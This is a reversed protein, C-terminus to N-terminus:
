IRVKRSLLELLVPLVFLSTLMCTGIGLTMVEGLSKIGQYKAIMLSAFGIMATLNSLLIARGTSVEFIEANGEEQFRRVVYIGNAVGIGLILPLVMYNAPNFSIKFVAMMGLGWVIGLVLPLLALLSATLSLFHLVVFIVIVGLAYEGAKEYSVRLLRTSELMQRPTGTAVQGLNAADLSALFRTNAAEDWIDEKPFVRLLIKRHVGLLQHRLVPPVDDFTLPTVPGGSGKILELKDALDNFFDAQYATLRKSSLDIPTNATRQLFADTNFVFERVQAAIEYQGAAQAEPFILFFIGRLQGLIRRLAEVDVTPLKGLSPLQSLERQIAPILAVKEEQNQPFMAAISEVSRVTPLKELRAQLDRAQEVNDASLLAPIISMQAKEFLVNEWKVSPTGQSQLMKLNAVFPVKSRLPSLSISDHFCIWTFIFALVIVAWPHGLLIDEFESLGQLPSPRIGNGRGLRTLRKDYILLLAPLVTMMAVLSFVLGGAALLGLEGIGQFGTFRAALFSVSTTIGATIISMGTGGFTETLADLPDRGALREEDYRSIVQIGFDIGLGILMPMCTVTLINLHGIALTAFGMTWGMAVILSLIAFGPRLLTGFAFLFLVAVGVLSLMSAHESDSQSANMEDVELPPEGTAGMEVDPFEKRMQALVDDLRALVDESPLAKGAADHAATFSVIYMAGDAFEGPYFETPVDQMDPQNPGGGGGFMQGWPSHYKFSANGVVEGLQAVIRGLIPLAGAIDPADGSDRVTSPSAGGKMAKEVEKKIYAQIEDNISGFLPVLGPHELMRRLFPAVDKLRKQLERLDNVPMFLLLRKRVFDLSVKDLIDTFWQPEARLLAGLRDVAARNREAHSSQLVVVFDDDQQFEQRFRLYVQNYEAQAGILNNRDPDFGLRSAALITSLVALGIAVIVIPWSARDCFSALAAM